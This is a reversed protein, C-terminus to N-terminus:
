RAVGLTVDVAAEAGVAVLLAKIFLSKATFANLSVILTLNKRSTTFSVATATRSVLNIDTHDFDEVRTFKGIVKSPILCRCVAFVDRLCLKFVLM